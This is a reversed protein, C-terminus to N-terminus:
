YALTESNGYNKNDNVRVYTDEVPLVSITKDDDTAVRDVESFVIKKEVANVEAKVDLSRELVELPVYTRDKCIVNLTELDYRYIDKYILKADIPVVTEVNNKTVSATKKAGNWGVEAGATEAVIRIPLMIPTGVNEVIEAVFQKDNISVEYNVYTNTDEAFAIGNVSLMAAVLASCIIKRKM